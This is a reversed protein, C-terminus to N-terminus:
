WLQIQSAVPANQVVGAWVRQQSALSGGKFVRRIIRVPFKKVVAAISGIPEIKIRVKM